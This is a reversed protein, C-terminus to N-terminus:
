ESEQQNRHAKEIHKLIEVLAEKTFGGSKTTSNDLYKEIQRRVSRKTMGGVPPRCESCAKTSPGSWNSNKVATVPEPIDRGCYTTAKTMPYHWEGEIFVLTPDYMAGLFRQDIELGLQDRVIERGQMTTYTEEESMSKRM